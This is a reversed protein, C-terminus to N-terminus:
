PIYFIDVGRRQAEKEDPKKLNQTSESERMRVERVRLVPLPPILARIRLVSSRRILRAPELWHASCSWRRSAIRRSPLDVDAQEARYKKHKIDM